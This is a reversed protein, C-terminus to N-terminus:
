EEKASTMLEVLSPGRPQSARGIAAGVGDPTLVRESHLGFGGAIQALHPGSLDTGLWDGRRVAEGGFRGLALGVAAFAENNLVVFTVQARYRQATWLAPLGFQFVGDGLFALVRREPQALAM